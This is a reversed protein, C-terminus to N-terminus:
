SRGGRMWWAWWRLTERWPWLLTERRSRAEEFPESPPALPKLLFWGALFGGIHAWWAVGAAAGPTLTSGVGQIVQSFLWLGAFIIAPMYFFLPLLGIPALVNIWAYPFRRVYAGIVGAIAGSAGLAPIESTFNFVFHALGAALGAVLYLAAYRSAGLRDELAPGFIWLSWLNFVIHLVGGHLFMSTVFPTPDSGSLGNQAAFESNTYRAPVLANDLLFAQMGASSLGLQYLFVAVCAAIVAYTVVPTADYPITNRTPIM